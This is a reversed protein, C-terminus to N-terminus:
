SSPTDQTLGLLQERLHDYKPTRDRVAPPLQALVAPIWQLAEASASTLPFRRVLARVTVEAAIPDGTREYWQATHLLKAAESEEIRAIMANAGMQEAETVRTHQLGQLEAKAELLGVIDFNPGKFAAVNAYILRRHALLLSPSRPYNEEFIAYAESAMRMRRQRYYLDGLALGGHEALQSGPLREQVRILLEEAESEASIIRMGLWKRKLGNALQVSLDYIREVAIQFQASDPFARAIHEYSHLAQYQDGMGVLADGRLLYAGALGPHAPNRQIWREAINYAREPRNEALMRRALALQAEPGDTHASAVPRWTDEPGLELVEQGVCPTSLLGTLTLVLWLRGCRALTMHMRPMTVSRMNDSLGHMVMHNSFAGEAPRAARHHGGTHTQQGRGLRSLMLSTQRVSDDPNHPDHPARFHHVAVSVRFHDDNWHNFRIIRSGGTSM